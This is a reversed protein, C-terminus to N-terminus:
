KIDETNKCEPYACCGYFKGYKGDRQKMPSGCKSCVKIGRSVMVEPDMENALCEYVKQNMKCDALARHAGLTSIGYLEALVGLSRSKLDPRYSRALKLTDVYDNGLTKGFYRMCDRYIFQLDFREINHGVLTMNGIFGIFDKLVVDFPMADKVMSDTINNVESAVKPIPRQPNVLTSFEDVIEGNVVKIASVEIVDEIETSLGTTELDFVVYDTLYKNLSKGTTISLGM